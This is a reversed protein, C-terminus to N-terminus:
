AGRRGLIARSIMFNFGLAVVSGAAVGGLIALPSQGMLQLWVWYVGVNILAGIGTALVYPVLTAAGAASRFTYNRNLLWTASAALVFALIRAPLPQLGGWQTLLLTLGADLVFGVVGVACFRLFDGPVSM